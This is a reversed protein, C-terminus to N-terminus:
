FRCKKFFLINIDKCECMKKLKVKLNKDIRVMIVEEKLIKTIM